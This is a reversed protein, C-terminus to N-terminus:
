LFDYDLEGWLQRPDTDWVGIPERSRELADLRERLDPASDVVSAAREGRVMLPVGLGITLIVVAPADSSAEDALTVTAMRGREALAMSYRLVADAAEDELVVAGGAYTLIKM